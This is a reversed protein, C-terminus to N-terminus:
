LIGLFRKRPKPEPAPEPPVARGQVWGRLFEHKARCDHYQGYNRIVTQWAEAPEIPRDTALTELSPPCPETATAPPLVPAKPVPLPALPPPTSCSCLLLTVIIQFARMIKRDLHTGNSRHEGRVLRVYSTRM